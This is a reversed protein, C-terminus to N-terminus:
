DRSIIISSSLPTSYVRSRAFNKKREEKIIRDIRGGHGVGDVM